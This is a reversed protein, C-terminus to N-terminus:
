PRLSSTASTTGMKVAPKREVIKPKVSKTFEKASQTAETSQSNFGGFTRIIKAADLRILNLNKHIIQFKLQIEKFEAKTLADGRAAGIESLKGQADALRARADKMYFQVEVMDKGGAQAKDIRSQIKNLLEEEMKILRQYADIRSVVSNRVKALSEERKDQKNEMATKSAMREKLNKLKEEIRGKIPRAGKFGPSSIFNSPEAPQSGEKRQAQVDASATFFLIGFIFLITLLIRKM